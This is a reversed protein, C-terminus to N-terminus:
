SRKRILIRSLFPEISNSLRFVWFTCTTYRRSRCALNWNKFKIQLHIIRFVFEFFLFFFVLSGYKPVSLDLGEFPIDLVAVHLKLNRAWNLSSNHWSCVRFVLFSSWFIVNKSSYPSHLPASFDLVGFRVDLVGVSHVYWM